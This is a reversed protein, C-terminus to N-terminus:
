ILTESHHPRRTATTPNSHFPSNLFKTHTELWSPGTPIIEIKNSMIYLKMMKLDFDATNIATVIAIARRNTM